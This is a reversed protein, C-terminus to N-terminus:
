PLFYGVQTHIDRASGYASPATNVVEVASEFVIQGVKLISIEDSRVRYKRDSTDSSAGNLQMVPAVLAM